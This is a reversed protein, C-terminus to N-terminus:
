NVPCGPATPGSPPDCQCAAGLPDQRMASMSLEGMQWSDKVELDAFGCAVATTAAARSQGAYLSPNFGAIALANRVKRVSTDRTLVSESAFLWSAAVACVPCLDNDTKGLFLTVGKCFPDTMSAKITVQLVKPCQHDDLTVDGISLHAGPDYLGQAPVCIEGSRLFGFICTCVAAWHMINDRNCKDKEWVQHLRRLIHPTTPLRTRCVPAPTRAKHEQIHVGPPVVPWHFPGWPSPKRGAPLM